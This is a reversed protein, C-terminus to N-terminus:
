VVFVTEKNTYISNWHIQRDSLVVRFSESQNGSKFHIVSSKNGTIVKFLNNTLNTPMM